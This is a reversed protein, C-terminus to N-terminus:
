IKLFEIKKFLHTAKPNGLKHSRTIHELAKDIDKKFFVKDDVILGYLYHEGMALIANSDGQQYSKLLYKLAVKIDKHLNILYIRFQSYAHGNDAAIKFYTYMKDKDVEVGDGDEYRRGLEYQAVKDHKACKHLWQIYKKMNNEHYYYKCITIDAKEWGRYSSIFLWKLCMIKNNKLKHIYTGAVNSAALSNGQKAAYLYKNFINIFKDYSISEELEFETFVGIPIDIDLDERASIFMEEPKFLEHRCLPCTYNNTKEKYEEMCRYHFKHGCQVLCLDYETNIQEICISCTISEELDLIPYEDNSNKFILDTRLIDEVEINIKENVPKMQIEKSRNVVKGTSIDKLSPIINKEHHFVQHVEWHRVQCNESCYYGNSCDNCSFDAPRACNNCLKQELSPLCITKHHSWNLKQCERSCYNVSRCRSCKNTTPKSCVFCLTTSAM